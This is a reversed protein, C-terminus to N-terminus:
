FRGVEVIGTFDQLLIHRFLCFIRLINIFHNLLHILPTDVEHLLFLRSQLPQSHLRNVQLDHVHTHQDFAIFFLDISHYEVRLDVEALDFLYKDRLSHLARVSWAILVDIHNGIGVTLVDGDYEWIHVLRTQPTLRAFVVQLM